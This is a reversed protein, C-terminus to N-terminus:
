HKKLANQVAYYDKLNLGPNNKIVAPPIVVVKFQIAISPSSSGYYILSVMGNQYGFNMNDGAALLGASPLAFYNGNALAYVLVADVNMDVIAPDAVGYNWYNTSSANWQGPNVTITGNNINAAGNTGNMGPTGAPGAPGEKGCSALLALLMVGFTLRLTKM